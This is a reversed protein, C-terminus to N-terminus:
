MAPNMMTNEHMGMLSLVAQLVIYLFVLACVLTFFKVVNSLM